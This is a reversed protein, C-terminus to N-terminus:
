EEEPRIHDYHGLYYKITVKTERYVEYYLKSFWISFLCFGTTLPAARPYRRFVTSIVGVKPQQFRPNRTYKKQKGFKLWDSSPEKM